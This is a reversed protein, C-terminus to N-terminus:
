QFVGTNMQWAMENDMLAGKIGGAIGRADTAATHVNVQNINTTATNSNTVNAFKKGNEHVFIAQSLAAIDKATLTADANIGM